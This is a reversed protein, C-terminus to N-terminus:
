ATVAERADEWEGLPRSQLFIRSGPRDTNRLAQEAAERDFFVITGPCQDVSGDPLRRAIRYQHTATAAEVQRQRNRQPDYM